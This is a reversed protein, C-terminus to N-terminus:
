GRLRRQVFWLYVLITLLLLALWPWLGPTGAGVRFPFVASYLKPGAATVARATVIGIYEGRAEFRHVATFVDPDTAPPQHFLTIPELDRGALDRWRAFRGLGTDNRVVRFDIAARALSDHQYEMVFVTEGPEPVDECYESHGRAAPQYIKFHGKLYGVQIVCLDNERVVGGHGFAAPALAILLLSLLVALRPAPRHHKM